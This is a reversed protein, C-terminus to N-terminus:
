ICFRLCLSPTQLSIHIPTVDGQWRNEVNNKIFVVKGYNRIEEIAIPRLCAYISLTSVFQMM